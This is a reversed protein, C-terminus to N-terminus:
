TTSLWNDKEHWSHELWCASNEILALEIATVKIKISDVKGSMCRWCNADASGYRVSIDLLRTNKAVSNVIVDFGGLKPKLLYKYPSNTTKCKSSTYRTGEPFLMLAGPEDQLKLSAELAVKRDRTRTTGDRLRELRPFNLALCVWGVVPVWLLERKILFKLIPGHSTIISQLIFIDFWSQHNSIILPSDKTTLESLVAAEDEIDFRVRLVKTLWWFNIIVATRYSWDVISFTAIKLKRFPLVTRITVMLLLLPLWALLNLTVFLFSIFSIFNSIGPTKRIDMHILRVTLRIPNSRIGWM